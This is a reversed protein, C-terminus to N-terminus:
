FVLQQSHTYMGHFRGTRVELYQRNIYDLSTLTIYLLRDVSVKGATGAYVIRLFLYQVNSHPQITISYTKGSHGQRLAWFRQPLLLGVFLVSLMSGIFPM